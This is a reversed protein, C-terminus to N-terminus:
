EIAARNTAWPAGSRARVWTAMSVSTSPATRARAADGARGSRSRGGAGSAPGHADDDGGDDAAMTNTSVSAAAPTCGGCRRTRRSSRAPASGSPPPRLTTLTIRTSKRPKSVSPSIVTSVAAAMPVTASARAPRRGPRPSVAASPLPTRWADEDGADGGDVHRHADHERGHHEARQPQQEGPVVLGATAEDAADDGAGRHRQAVDAATEGLHTSQGTPPRPHHEAGAHQDRDRRRDHRQQEAVADEVDADKSSSRGSSPWMLTDEASAKSM